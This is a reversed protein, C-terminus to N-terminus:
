GIHLLLQEVTIIDKGNSAFEPIIDAVREEIRLNRQEILLWIAAAVPVKTCSFICYLTQDTAAQKLGGQVAEGFSRMGALRGHRAIAIQASPLVGQEVDRRARAFVMEMRESDVGVDEPHTAVLEPKLM